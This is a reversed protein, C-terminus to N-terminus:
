TYIRWGLPQNYDLFMLYRAFRLDYKIASAKRYGLKIAQVQVEILRKIGYKEIYKAFDSKCAHKIKSIIKAIQNNLILSHTNDILQSALSLIGREVCDLCKYWVRHRIAKSRIDILFGKTFM